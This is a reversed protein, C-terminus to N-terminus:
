YHKFFHSEPRSKELWFWLQRQFETWRDMQRHKIEMQWVLWRLANMKQSSIFRARVSDMWPWESLEVELAWSMRYCERTVWLGDIVSATLTQVPVPPPDLRRLPPLTQQFTLVGVQYPFPSSTNMDQTTRQQIKKKYIHIIWIIGVRDVRCLLLHSASCAAGRERGRAM